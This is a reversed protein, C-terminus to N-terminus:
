DDDGGGLFCDLCALEGPEVHPCGGQDAQQGERQAAAVEAAHWRDGGLSVQCRQSARRTTM